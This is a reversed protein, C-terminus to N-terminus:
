AADKGRSWTIDKVSSGERFELVCEFHNYNGTCNHNSRTMHLNVEVNVNVM